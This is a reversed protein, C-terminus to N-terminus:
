GDIKQLTGGQDNLLFIVTDFVLRHWHGTLRDKWDIFNLHYPSKPADNSEPHRDEFAKIEGLVRKATTPRHRLMFHLHDFARNTSPNIVPNKNESTFGIYDESPQGDERHYGFTKAKGMRTEACNDFYIFEGIAHAAPKVDNVRVRVKIQM